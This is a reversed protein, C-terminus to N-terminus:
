GAWSNSLLLYDRYDEPNGIEGAEAAKVINYLERATVYHLCCSLGECVGSLSRLFTNMEAGLLVAANKEPAGHTHLKIFAWDGMGQVQVRQQLWLQFRDVTPPRGYGLEGNEIAPLVGKKRARWDLSLPGQILLLGSRDKGVSAPLGRNHSNSADPDDLAYYISNITSTQTIDPASPMTFDAYCGTQQLVTLEDNVGCWRGDPRSNDLAWNGHIFGYKVSGTSRETCLGAHRDSFLEKYALLTKKLNESSDNDHHLHIELESCGVQCLGAVRAVVDEEYEDIPYFFSHRYGNGFSDRCNKYIQPLTEQWASVRQLARELPVTGAFPEYHDAVCFMIHKPLSRRGLKNKVSQLIYSHLWKHLNKHWAM